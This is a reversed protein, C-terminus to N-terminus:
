IKNGMAKEGNHFINVQQFQTNYLIDSQQLMPPPPPATFVPFCLNGGNSITANAAFNLATQQAQSNSHINSSHSIPRQNFLPFATPPVCFPQNSNLSILSNGPLIGLFYILLVM